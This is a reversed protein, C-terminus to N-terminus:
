FESDEIIMPENNAALAWEQMAPMAWITDAYTQCTEDLDIKYTRFRSVVPAYMADAITFGGFLFPGAGESVQKRCEAM